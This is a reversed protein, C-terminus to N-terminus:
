LLNKAEVRVNLSELLILHDMSGKTLGLGEIWLEAM